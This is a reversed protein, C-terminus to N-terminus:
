SGTLRKERRKKAEKEDGKRVVVVVVEEEKGEELDILRKCACGVAEEVFGGGGEIAGGLADDLRREVGRGFAAGCDGDRM